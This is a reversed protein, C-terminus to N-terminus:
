PKTLLLYNKARRPMNYVELTPTATCALFYNGSPDVEIDSKATAPIAAAFTVLTNMLAASFDYIQLFFTAGSVLLYTGCPSWRVATIAGGPISTITLPTGFLGTTRSFPVVYIYPTVSMGFALYDGQPRWALAKSAGAAPGGAPLVAPNAVVAGLAGALTVAHAWCRIFPTTQSVAALYDGHPHWAMANVQADPLQAPNALKVGIEATVGGTSSHIPYVSMFPTTTHGVGVFRGAPHVAICQGAGTPITGPNAFATGVGTDRDLYYGGIFPTTTSSLFVSKGYPTYAMCTVTGVATAPTVLNRTGIPSQYQLTNPFLNYVSVFPTSSSGMAVATGYPTMCMGVPAALPVTLSVQNQNNVLAEATDIGTAYFWLYNKSQAAPLAGIPQYPQWQTAQDTMNFTYLYPPTVTGVTSSPAQLVTLSHIEGAQPNSFNIVCSDTLVVKQNLGTAWNITVSKGSNQSIVASSQGLRITRWASGNYVMPVAATPTTIDMYIRGTSAPTTTPSAVQELQAGELQGLVKM